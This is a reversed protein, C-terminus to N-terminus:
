LDQILAHIFDRSKSPAMAVRQVRDLLIRYMELEAEADVLVPGHSQDLSVTDLQPVPGSAYHINQGSGPYAGIAFPIVQITIHERESQEVLHELQRKAAAAGGVPVRLAAEHIVARFPTPDERDLLGQRQLRHSVRHEIDSRSFAPVVQRFIERAHDATQLLGPIHATNASHLATAHFEVEAINLLAPPLVERFTEWWGRRRDAAMAVLADVYPPSACSYMTAMARVREASVGFRASEVNSLQGSSTGLLKAAETSTLGARERLKRLETALRIRRATPAPRTTM